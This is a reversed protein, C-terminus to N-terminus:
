MLGSFFIANLILKNTGLWYGRFDMNEYFSIVSGKELSQISVVPAGKLRNINQPSAYGSILPNDSFRIPEGYPLNISEAVMTGSKFISIEDRSYGYCLPHTIDLNAKFIAGSILNKVRVSQQDAFKASATSDRKASPKFQTNTLGNRSVWRAADGFTILSNGKQIWLKISELESKGMDRYSGSPLILTNYEYLNASSFRNIDVLCVPIKYKIDLLHWLEGAQRSNVGDGVLMLLEPKKIGSFKNSGIDIGSSTLGTEIAYFDIGSNAAINKITEYVETVSMQQESVQILVSGYTFKETAGNVGCEFKDTAVKTYIGNGVLSYLVQPSSYQDWRFVYAYNSKGGIVEGEIQVEGNLPDGLVSQMEKSGIKTYPINYAHPFTWTSVDYFTTDKFSVVEEFFSRILRYQKQNLPIAFSFDKHFVIGEKEINEKLPFVHIQHKELFSIFKGTKELDTEDGFIYAKVQDKEAQSLAETYFEKQLELLEEKLDLASELTSLTVAFQNRIGFALKKVGSSTERVRGRFGAQEFLIGISGNIDPYSSGKGFYFDDFNEESFYYSGISDLFHAHYNGIMKTLEYNRKPTLPNNRSPVGPQFFFSSGSGMEHHDTVINPKWEHFRSVRGKSEPHVLLIYDRNLDFWYHNTRGGPWVESFQRSDSYPMETSSQHMNAWTSHRTFGDPNLCPDVLIITSELLRDIKEGQAAALYYATLVSSNTASSENGHVGYGLNVVLPISEKEIDTGPESYKYHLEKLQNLNKQNESSTFVVQILPRNEHTRAYEQIIARDSIREIEQMYSLVQSHTLHREGMQQNFFQEPTPIKPNYDVNDPLFYEMKEQASVTLVVFAFLIILFVIKNM